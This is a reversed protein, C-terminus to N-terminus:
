RPSLLMANWSWNYGCNRGRGSQFSQVAAWLAAQLGLAGLRVTSALQAQLQEERSHSADYELQWRAALARAEEASAMAAAAAASKSQLKAQLSQNETMLAAVVDAATLKKKIAATDKPTTNGTLAGSASRESSKPSGFHTCLIPADARLNHPPMGSPSHDVSVCLSLPSVTM